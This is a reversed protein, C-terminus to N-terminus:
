IGRKQQDEMVKAINLAEQIQPDEMRNKGAAIRANIWARVIEPAVIDHARLVFLMEHDSAKNLCSNFDSVEDIRKM